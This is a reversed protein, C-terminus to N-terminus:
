RGAESPKKLSRHVAVAVGLIIVEEEKVPIDFYQPNEAHLLGMGDKTVLLRKLTAEEGNVIAVVIDGPEAYRQPRVLVIDGDNIGAGLMSDGKVKLAWKVEEAQDAPIPIHGIIQEEALVPLGARIVGVVPIMVVPQAGYLSGSEQVMMARERINTRGLLYDISCDLIAAIRELYRAEPYNPSADSEWSAVTSRSVGLKDALEKQLLGARERAAKLRKPFKETM